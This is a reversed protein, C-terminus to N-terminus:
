IGSLRALELQRQAFYEVSGKFPEGTVKNTIRGEIWIGRKLEIDVQVADLGPSDPVDAHTALYPLEEDPIAVILNGERKPMGTLRYRGQADTTTQVLDFEHRLGRSITLAHSRVTMGAFPKKTDKDRVVGVIPKCPAAVHRLTAGYYTTVTSPEHFDPNGEHETVQIPEGPRTLICLHQSTITPGDLQVRILRNSGIGTIKFRGAADTTVQLPVAITYEKLYQQELELSLGKKSKCAELWSSFDHESAANIQMLRLTAGGVPKGELDVIQGAVPVDAQALQVKLDDKKSDAPVKVWGVGRNAAFAAVVSPQEGFKAKPARFSFRGDPGATAYEPSPSPEHPYGWAATLYLKAGHVPKGRADVVQGSYTVSEQEVRAKRQQPKEKAKPLVAKAAVTAVPEPIGTQRAILAQHTVGITLGAAMLIVAAIKAQYIVM